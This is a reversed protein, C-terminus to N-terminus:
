CGRVFDRFEDLQADFEDLQKSLKDHLKLWKEGGDDARIKESVCAILLDCLESRTVEVHVKMRNRM